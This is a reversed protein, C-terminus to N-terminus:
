HQCGMHDGKAVPRYFLLKAVLLPHKKVLEPDNGQGDKKAFLHRKGNRIYTVTFDDDTESAFRRLEFYTLRQEHDIYQQIEPHDTAVLDVLDDQHGLLRWAPMFLHNNSYGETRLNSYMTFSTQTKLGLYQSMGNLVVLPIMLWLFAPVRPKLDEPLRTGLEGSFRDLMPRAYSALIFLMWLGWAMWALRYPELMEQSIQYNGTKFALIMGGCFAIVVFSVGRYIARQRTPSVGDWWARKWIDVRAALQDIIFLGYLSYAIGSFTRHEIIGLMLHFPLGIAMAWVQTRRFTFFVPILLEIIVTAWISLADVWSGDPLFPFRRLVDEHYMKTVCSFEANLFDTNLKALVAFYYMLILM